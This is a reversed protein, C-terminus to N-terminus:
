PRICGCSRETQGAELYSTQGGPGVVLPPPHGANSLRVMVSDLDLVLYVLTVIEPVLLQSVLRDLRSVVKAPLPEESRWTPAPWSTARPWCCAPFNPSGIRCFAGSCRRPSGTSANPRGARPSTRSPESCECPSETPAHADERAANRSRVARRGQRGGVLHHARRAPRGTCGGTAPVALGGVGALRLAGCGRGTALTREEAPAASAGPQPRIAHGRPCGHGRRGVVGGM